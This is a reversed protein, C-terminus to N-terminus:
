LRIKFTATERILVALEERNSQALDVMKHVSSRIHRGRDDIKNMKTKLDESRASLMQAQELVSANQQHLLASESRVEATIKHLQALTELVQASGQKQEELSTKVQLSLAEVLNVKSMIDKFSTEVTNIASVMSAIAAQVSKLANGSEKSKIASTEALNRIEDAVVAFGKGAEGAHAAEIAANMALLNTRAAIGAITSNVALLDQSKGSVDIALSSVASLREMGRDSVAKLDQVSSSVGEMNNAISNVNATMEEVAASSEQLRRSQSEINSDLNSVTSLNEQMFGTVQNVMSVQDYLAQQMSSIAEAIQEVDVGTQEIQQNSLDELSALAAVAAKIRNILISLKELLDDMTKGLEGIEDTSLGQFRVTFVGKGVPELLSHFLKLPKVTQTTIIFIVLLTFLFIILAGGISITRFLYLPALLEDQPVMVACLWQGTGENLKIPFFLSYYNRNGMTYWTMLRKTLESENGNKLHQELAAALDLPFVETYLKGIREENQDSLITGGGSLLLAYGSPGYRFQQVQKIVMDLSTDVGCVGLFTKNQDYLPVAISTNIIHVGDVEDEYPEMLLLIGANKPEVFYAEEFYDNDQIVKVETGTMSTYFGFSGAGDWGNKNAFLADKGDWRNHDYVTWVTFLDPNQHHVSALLSRVFNRDQYGETRLANLSAALAKVVRAKGELNAQIDAAMSKGALYVTKAAGEQIIRDSLLSLVAVVVTLAFLLVPVTWLLFRGRITTIQLKKM